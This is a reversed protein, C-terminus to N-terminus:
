PKQARFYFVVSILNGTPLGLRFVVTKVFEIFKLKWGHRQYNVFLKDQLTEVVFNRSLVDRLRQATFSQMHGWRHFKEACRPCVVMQFRLDERAPVTGIIYGGPVLVRAIEDLVSDMAEPSLHELVESVVVADFFNDRFPISQGYGVQAKSGLGYKRRMNEISKKGPDLAYVDLKNKLAAEEFFGAGVGINLVRGGPNVQRALFSLRPKSDFFTEPAENQYYEWIVDQKM